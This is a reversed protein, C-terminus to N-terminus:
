MSAATPGRRPLLFCRGVALGARTTWTDTRPDYAEVTNLYNSNDSGYNSNESGGIAYVLGDSGAAAALGYRATPM